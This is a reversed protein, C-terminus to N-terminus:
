PPSRTHKQPGAESKVRTQPNESQKRIVVQRQAYIIRRKVKDTHEALSTMVMQASNIPDNKVKRIEKKLDQFIRFSPDPYKNNIARELRKEAILKSQKEM